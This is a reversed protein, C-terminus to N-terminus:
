FYSVFNMVLALVFAAVMGRDGGLASGVLLFLATLTALLVTTKVANM